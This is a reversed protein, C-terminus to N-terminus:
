AFSKLDKRWFAELLYDKNIIRSDNSLLEKQRYEVSLLMKQFFIKSFVDLLNQLSHWNYAYIILTYVDTVFNSLHIHIVLPTLRPKFTTTCICICNQPAASFTSCTFIIIEPHPLFLPTARAGDAGGLKVGNHIVYASALGFHIM